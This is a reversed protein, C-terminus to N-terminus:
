RNRKVEFRSEAWLRYRRVAAKPARQGPCVAARERAQHRRPHDPLAQAPLAARGAGAPAVCCRLNAARYLSIPIYLCEAHARLQVRFLPPM